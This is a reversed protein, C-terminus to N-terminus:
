VEKFEGNELKYIKKNNISIFYVYEYNYNKKVCKLKDYDGDSQHKKFEIYVLNDDTCRKHICLDSRINGNDITKINNKDRNYEIDVSYDYIKNERLIEEIYVAIRHVMCIEHVDVKMLCEDKEYFKNLAEKIYQEM